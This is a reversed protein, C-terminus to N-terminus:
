EKDFLLSMQNKVAKIIESGDSIVFWGRSKGLEQLGKNSGLVFPNGVAELIPVDHLSDGFAFSRSVAVGGRLYEGVVQRKAVDVALNNVVEGTFHGDAVEVRTARLEDLSLFRKLPLLPEVPSGSIAITRGMRKVLRVLEQAYDLIRYGRVKGKQAQSFFSEAQIEVEGVTQGRLGLAYHRVLAVAFKRYAEKGKDSMQYFFLDAQMQRWCSYGFIRQNELYEAFSVITLGEALTGDIDFFMLPEKQPLVEIDRSLESVKQEPISM